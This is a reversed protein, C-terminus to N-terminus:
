RCDAEHFFDNMANLKPAQIPHRREQEATSRATSFCQAVTCQALKRLTACAQKANSLALPRCTPTFYRRRHRHLLHFYVVCLFSSRRSFPNPITRALSFMPVIFLRATPCTNTMPCRRGACTCPHKYLRMFSAYELHWLM